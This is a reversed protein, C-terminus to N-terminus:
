REPFVSRKRRTVRSGGRVITRQQRVKAVLGAPCPFSRQSVDCASFATKKKLSDGHIEKAPKTSQLSMMIIKQQNFRIWCKSNVKYHNIPASPLRSRRSFCCPKKTPHTLATGASSGVPLPK